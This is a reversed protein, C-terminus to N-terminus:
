VAMAPHCAKATARAMDSGSASPIGISGLNVFRSWGTFNMIM